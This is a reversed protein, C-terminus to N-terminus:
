IKYFSTGESPDAWLLTTLTPSLLLIQINETTKGYYYFGQNKSPCIAEWLLLLSLLHCDTLDHSWHLADCALERSNEKFVTSVQKGKQLKQM